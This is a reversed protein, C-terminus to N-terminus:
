AWKQVQMMCIPLLPLKLSITRKKFWKYIHWASNIIQLCLSIYCSCLKKTQQPFFGGMAKVRQALRHGIIYSLTSHEDLAVFKEVELDLNSDSAEFNLCNFWATVIRKTIKEDLRKRSATCMAHDLLAKMAKLNNQPTWFKSIWDHFHKNQSINRNSFKEATGIIADIPM